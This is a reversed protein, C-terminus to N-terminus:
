VVCQSLSDVTTTCLNTPICVVLTLKNRCFSQLMCRLGDFFCFVQRICTLLVDLASSRGRVRRSLTKRSPGPRFPLLSPLSKFRTKSTSKRSNELSNKRAVSVMSNLRISFPQRPSQTKLPMTLSVAYSKTTRPRYRLNLTLILFTHTISRHQRHENM